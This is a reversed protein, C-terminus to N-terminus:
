SRRRQRGASYHWPRSTQVDTQVGSVGALSAVLSGIFGGVGVIGADGDRTAASAPRYGPVGDAVGRQHLERLAANSARGQRVEADAGIRRAGTFSSYEPASVAESATDDPMWGCNAAPSRSM